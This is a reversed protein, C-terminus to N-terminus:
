INTEETLGRKYVNPNRGLGKVKCITNDHIAEQVKKYKQRELM